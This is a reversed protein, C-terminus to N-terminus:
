LRSRAVGFLALVLPILWAAGGGGEDTASVTRTNLAQINLNLVEQDKGKHAHKAVLSHKGRSGRSVVPYGYAEDSIGGYEVILLNYSFKGDVIGLDAWPMTFSIQDGNFKPTAAALVTGWGGASLTGGCPQCSADRAIVRGDIYIEGGRIVSEVDAQRLPVLGADNDIYYQFETAQQNNVSVTAYDYVNSLQMTFKVTEREDNITVWEDVIVLRAEADSLAMPGAMALAVILILKM